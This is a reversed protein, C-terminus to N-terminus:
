RGVREHNRTYGRTTYGPLRSVVVDEAGGPLLM